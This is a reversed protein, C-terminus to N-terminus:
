CKKFLYWIEPDFIKLFDDKIPYSLNNEKINKKIAELYNGVSSYIFNVSLNTSTQYKAINNEIIIFDKEKWAKFDDSFILLIENQDLYTNNNMEILEKFGDLTLYYDKVDFYNKAMIHTFLKDSGWWFQMSKEKIRQTREITGVRDVIYNNIGSKKLIYTFTFSLGFADLGWSNELKIKFIEFVKLHGNTFQDIMDDYHNVTQDNISLGSQAIILQKNELFYLMKQLKVEDKQLYEYYEFLFSSESITFNRQPNKELIDIIRDYICKVCCYSYYGKGTGNFYEEYTLGWSLDNHSNLVIHVNIQYSYFFLFCFFLIFFM